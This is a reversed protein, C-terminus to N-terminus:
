RKAPGTGSLYPAATKLRKFNKPGTNVEVTACCREIIGTCLIRATRVVAYEICPPLYGTSHVTSGGTTERLTLSFWIM